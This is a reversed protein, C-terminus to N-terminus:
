VAKLASEDSAAGPNNTPLLAIKGQFDSVINASLMKNDRYFRNSQFDDNRVLEVGDLLLAVFHSGNEDHSFQVGYGLAKLMMALNM